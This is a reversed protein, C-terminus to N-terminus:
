APPKRANRATCSPQHRWDATLKQQFPAARMETPTGRVPGSGIEFRPGAESQM